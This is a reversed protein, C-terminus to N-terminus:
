MNWTKKAHRFMQVRCNAFEYNFVNENTVDTPSLMKLAWIGWFFNNLLVHKRVEVELRPLEQSVYDDFSM